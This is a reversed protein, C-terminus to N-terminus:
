FIIKCVMCSELFLPMKVTPQDTVCPFPSDRYVYPSARYGQYISLYVIHCTSPVTYTGDPLFGSRAKSGGGSPCGARDPVIHVILPARNQENPRRASAVNLRTM